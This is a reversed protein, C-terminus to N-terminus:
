HLMNLANTADDVFDVGVGMPSTVLGFLSGAGAAEVLKTDVQAGRPTIEVLNGDGGNAALIHGNPAMTLGLPGNLGGNMTLTMGTGASTKRRDAANIKAIRNSLTDAVYLTGDHSLALGTPGIVLAAPDTKEPFGSGITTMSRVSPMRMDPVKLDIRVVTGQDVESGNGAVTGNLVNAVYIQASDEDDRGTMDWPGNIMPGSFTEVV